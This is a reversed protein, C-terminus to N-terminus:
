AESPPWNAELLYPDDNDRLVVGLPTGFSDSIDSIALVM